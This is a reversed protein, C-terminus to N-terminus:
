HTRDVASWNPKSKGAGVKVSQKEVGRRSVTVLGQHLAAHAESQEFLNGVSILVKCYRPLKDLERAQFGIALDQAVVCSVMCWTM